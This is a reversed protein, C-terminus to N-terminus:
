QDNTCKQTGPATALARMKSLLSKNLRNRKFLPEVNKNINWRDRDINTYVMKASNM